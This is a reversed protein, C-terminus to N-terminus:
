AAAENKDKREVISGGQWTAHITRKDIEAQQNEGEFGYFTVSGDFESVSFETWLDPDFYYAVFDIPTTRYHKDHTDIVAVKALDWDMERGDEVAIQMYSAIQDQPSVCRMGAKRIAEDLWYDAAWQQNSAVVIFQPEKPQIIM